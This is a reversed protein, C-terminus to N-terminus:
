EEPSLLDKRLDEYFVVLANLRRHCQSAVIRDEAWLVRLEEVSLETKDGARKSVSQVRACGRLNEPLEPLSVPETKPLSLM